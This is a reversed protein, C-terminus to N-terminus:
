SAAPGLQARVADRVRAAENFFRDLHADLQDFDQRRIRGEVDACIQSFQVAGVSASASKLTHAARGLAEWKADMRAARAEAEHRDLSKAYTDLVRTVFGNGGTPDLQRLQDLCAADLVPRDPNDVTPTPRAELM